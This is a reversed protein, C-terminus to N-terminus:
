NKEEWGFLSNPTVELAKCIRPIDDSKILKRNRLMANFVKPNYGAAQAVLSQKMKKETMISYIAEPLNM